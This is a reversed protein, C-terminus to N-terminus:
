NLVLATIYKNIVEIGEATMKYTTRRSTIKNIMIWGRKEFSRLVSNTSGLSFACSKAIERQKANPNQSLLKKLKILIIFETDQYM